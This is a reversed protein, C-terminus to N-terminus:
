GCIDLRCKGSRRAEIRWSACNKGCRCSRKLLETLDAIPLASRLRPDSTSSSEVWLTTSQDEM